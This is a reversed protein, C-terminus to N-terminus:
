KKSRKNTKGKEASNMSSGTDGPGNGPGDVAGNQQRTEEMLSLAARARAGGRKRLEGTVSQLAVPVEKDMKLYWLKLNRAKDKLQVQNRDKLIESISGGRGYLALIQSWHPGSVQDLGSLLADEEPKTWPQRITTTSVPPKRSPENLASKSAQLAKAIDGGNVHNGNAPSATKSGSSSDLPGQPTNSPKRDISHSGILLSQGRVPANLLTEANKTVCSAFERVFDIWQYKKPLLRLTEETSPEALLYTKRARSRDIFDQESPSLSPTDPHRSLIQADMDLPFLEDLMAEPSADSNMLASVYTQTKLELYIIGQWKLLRNGLPVFTELFFENLHFFSIDHAGLISSVFSAINAKRITEQQSPQYMQIAIADIFPTDRTYVKRTQDFLSKLTSYAQSEESDSGNTIDQLHSYNARAITHVLQTALNELISLSQLKLHMSADEQFGAGAKGVIQQVQGSTHPYGNISVLAIDRYEPTITTMSSSDESVGNANSSMLFPMATPSSTSPAFSGTDATPPWPSNYTAPDTQQYFYPQNYSSVDPYPSSWTTSPAASAQNFVPAESPFTEHMTVGSNVDYLSAEEHSTTMPFQSEPGNLSDVNENWARYSSRLGDSVSGNLRRRKNAPGPALQQDVGFGESMCDYAYIQAAVSLTLRQWM